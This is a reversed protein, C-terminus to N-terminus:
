IAVVRTVGDNEKDRELRYISGTASESIGDKPDIM